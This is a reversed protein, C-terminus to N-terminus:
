DKRMGRRNVIIREGFRMAVVITKTIRAAGVGGNTVRIEMIAVGRTTVGIAVVRPRNKCIRHFYVIYPVLWWNLMQVLTFGGLYPIIPTNELMKCLSYTELPLLVQKNNSIDGKGQIM